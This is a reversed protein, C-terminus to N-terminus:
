FVIRHGPRPAAAGSSRAPAVVYLIAATALCAVAVGLSVDAVIADRQMASIKEDDAATCRGSCQTELEDARSLASVGFITFSGLALVGTGALVWSPLHSPGEPAVSAPPPPAAAASATRSPAVAFGVAVRRNKEGERVLLVQQITRGRRVIRLTHEGPDVALSAGSVKQAVREDDVFVEVDSTEGGQEDRVELVITPQSGDVAVLFDACERPIPAPCREAACSVFRERAARLKGGRVLRQGEAHAQACAAKDGDQAQVERSTTALAIVAGLLAAAGRVRQWRRPRKVPM